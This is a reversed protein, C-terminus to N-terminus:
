MVHGQLRNETKYWEVSDFCALTSRKPSPVSAHLRGKISMIIFSTKTHALASLCTQVPSAQADSIALNPGSGLIGDDWHGAIQIYNRM